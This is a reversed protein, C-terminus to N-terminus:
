VSVGPPMLRGLIAITVVCEKKLVRGGAIECEGM